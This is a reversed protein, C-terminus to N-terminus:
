LPLYRLGRRGINGGIIGGVVGMALIYKGIICGKPQWTSFGPPDRQYGRGTICESHQDRRELRWV